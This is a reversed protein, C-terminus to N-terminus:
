DALSIRAPRRPSNDALGPRGNAKAIAFERDDRISRRTEQECRAVARNEILNRVSVNGCVREVARDLRRDLAAIGAESTLNLDGYYVHVTQPEGAAIASAPVTAILAALAFAIPRLNSKRTTTEM